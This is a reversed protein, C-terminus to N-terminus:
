RRPRYRRFRWIIYFAFSYVVAAGCAWLILFSRM